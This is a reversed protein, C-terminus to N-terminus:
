NKIKKTKKKLGWKRLTSVFVDTKAFKYLFARIKNQNYQPMEDHQHYDKVSMFDCKVHQKLIEHDCLLSRVEELHPEM